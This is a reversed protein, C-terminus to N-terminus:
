LNLPNEFTPGAHLSPDGPRVELAALEKAKMNLHFMSAFTSTVKEPSGNFTKHLQYLLNLYLRSFTMAYKRARSGAPYDKVHPNDPFPYVAEPDFIVRDGAFIMRGNQKILKRGEVIEQFKYYHALEDYRDEPEMQSSGEGQEVIVQIARVADELSTVKFIKLHGPLHYKVQRAPDGTFITLNKERAENELRKLYRKILMYFGGITDTHSGEDEDEPPLYRPMEIHMFVDRILHVSLPSLHLTLDPHLDGPLRSPYVPVVNPSVFDPSGGIANLINAAMSMHVMEEIVISRIIERVENNFGEKISYFAYLYAPITYHEVQTALQLSKRLQELSMPGRRGKSPSQYQHLWKLVTATKNRSLDRTIPMFNPHDFPMTMSMIIYQINRPRIVSNYDVLNVVRRMVPYLYYYQRFINYVGKEGFWTPKDESVFADFVRVSFRRDSFLDESEPVFRVHYPCGDITRRPNGPNGAEITFMAEGNNDTTINIARQGNVKLADLVNEEKEKPVYSSGLLVQVPLQCRCLPYGRSTALIKVTHSDGPNMFIATRSLSRIDQQPEVLLTLNDSCRSIHLYEDELAEMTKKDPTLTQVGATRHYWDGSIDIVGVDLNSSSTRLCLKDGFGEMDVQFQGNVYRYQMTTSFDVTVSSGNGTLEFQGQGNGNGVMVPSFPRFSRRGVPVRSSGPGITGVVLGYTNNPSNPDLIYLYTVIAISVVGNAAERLQRLSKFKEDSNLLGDNWEVSELVTEGSASGTSYNPTGPKNVAAGNRISRFNLIPLRASMLLVNDGPSRLGVSMGYLTDGLYNEFDTGVLKGSVESVATEVAVGVLPDDVKCIENNDCVSTIHTSHFDFAGTGRNNFDAYTWKPIEEDVIDFNDSDFLNYVNNGTITDARTMGAFHIRPSDLYSGRGYLAEKSNSSDPPCVSFGQCIYITSLLLVIADLHIM